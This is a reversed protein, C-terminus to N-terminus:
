DRAVLVGEAGELAKQAKSFRRIASNITRRVTAEDAGDLLQAIGRDFTTLGGSLGRLATLLARRARAYPATSAEEAAVAGSYRRVARNLRATTARLRRATAEDGAELKDAAKGFAKLPAQMARQEKQVAAKLSADDALAPAATATGLGLVLLVTAIARIM